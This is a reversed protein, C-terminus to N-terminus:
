LIERPVSKRTRFRIARSRLEKLHPKIGQRQEQRLQRRRPDGAADGGGAHNSARATKCHRARRIPATRIPLTRFTRSPQV